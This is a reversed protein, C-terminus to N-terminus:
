QSGGNAALLRQACVLNWEDMNWAYGPEDHTRIFAQDVPVYSYDGNIILQEQLEAFLEGLNALRTEYSPYDPLRAAYFRPGFDAPLWPLALLYDMQRNRFPQWHRNYAFLASILSDSAADLRDQAILPGLQQWTTLPELSLHEDLWILAEDLRRLRLDDPYHTQRAIEQAVRGSRDFAVWGNALEARRPEPWQFHPASWQAWDLRKLDLQIGEDALAPLESFISHFSNDAPRWIFEAPAIYWDFPDLFLMADIDSDARARGTAVSGIVVVGQVAPARQLVQEVFLSLQQRKHATVPNM